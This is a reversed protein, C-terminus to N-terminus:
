RPTRWPCVRVPDKFFLSDAEYDAMRGEMSELVTAIVRYNPDSRLEDFLTSNRQRLVRGLTFLYGMVGFSFAIGGLRVLQGDTLSDLPVYGRKGEIFPLDAAYRLFVAEGVSLFGKGAAPGVHWFQQNLINLLRYGAHGLLTMQDDFLGQGEYIEFFEVETVVCLAQSLAKAGGRLIRLEAGQADISIVDPPPIEGSAVIDDLSVTDVMLVHDLEANQGWTHCWAYEPNEHEALRSLGLLSSSLPFKNVNFSSRGALEDIGKFIVTAPIGDQTLSQSQVVDSTETRAEFVVLRVHRSMHRLLAMAPGYDGEGGIHYIVIEKDDARQNTM